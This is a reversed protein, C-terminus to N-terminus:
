RNTSQFTETQKLDWLRQLRPRSMVKNEVEEKEM